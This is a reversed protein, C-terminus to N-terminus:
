KMLVMKKTEIFNGAQLKYFYIGSSLNNATFDARYVGAQQQENVLSAVENGLVDYVKLEVFSEEPISYEISTSPNFPNPHNQQLEYDDPVLSSVPEVDTVIYSIKFIKAGGNTNEFFGIYFNVEALSEGGGNVTGSLASTKPNSPLGDNNQEWTEGDDISTYFGIGFSGKPFWSVGLRKQNLAALAGTYMGSMEGRSFIALFTLTLYKAERFSEYINGDETGGILRTSPGADKTFLPYDILIKVVTDEAAIGTAQEWLDGNNTSVFLGNTTAAVVYGGSDVEMDRVWSNGPIGNTAPAWNVGNDTSRLPGNRTGAFITNPTTLTNVAISFINDGSPVTVLPTGWSNGNDTSRNLGEAQPFDWLSAYLNGDPADIITRAIFVDNLNEWTAGDDTSRRVGGMDGNPWNFSGTTVFIHGNSQRVVMETVGSGEPTSSTQQWVQSNICVSAVIFIVAFILNTKM